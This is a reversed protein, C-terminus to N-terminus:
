NARASVNGKKLNNIEKELLQNLRLLTANYAELEAIRQLLFERDDDDFSQKIPTVKEHQTRTYAHAPAQIRAPTGINNTNNAKQAFKEGTGYLLWEISFANELSENVRKLLNDNLYRTDANFAHSLNSNAIGIHKSFEQKTRCIGIEKAYVFMEQLKALKDM